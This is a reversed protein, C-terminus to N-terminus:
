QILLIANYKSFLGVMDCTFINVASDSFSGNHLSTLSSYKTAEKFELKIPNIIVVNLSTKTLTIDIKISHSCVCVIDSTADEMHSLIASKLTMFIPKRGIKNVHSVKEIMPFLLMSEVITPM